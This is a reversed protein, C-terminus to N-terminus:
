LVGDDEVDIEEDDIDMDIEDITDCPTSLIRNSESTN